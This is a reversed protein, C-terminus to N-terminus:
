NGFQSRWWNLDFWWSIESNQILKWALYYSIGSLGLFILVAVSGAIRIEREEAFFYTMGLVSAILGYTSLFSFLIIGWLELSDYITYSQNM